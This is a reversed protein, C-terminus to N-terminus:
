PEDRPECRLPVSSLHEPDLDERRLDARRDGLDSPFEILSAAQEWEEAARDRTPRVGGWVSVCHYEARSATSGRRLDITDDRRLDVVEDVASPGSLERDSRRRAIGM